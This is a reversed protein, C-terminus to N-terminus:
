GLRHGPRGHPPVAGPAAPQGDGVEPRRRRVVARGRRGRERSLNWATRASSFPGALLVGGRETASRAPAAAPRQQQQQLPSHLLDALVVLQGPARDRLEHSQEVILLLSFKRLLSHTYENQAAWLRLPYDPLVGM